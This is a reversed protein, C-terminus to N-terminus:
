DTSSSDPTEQAVRAPTTRHGPGSRVMQPHSAATTVPVSAATVAKSFDGPITISAPIVQASGTGTPPPTLPMLESPIAGPPTISPLSAGFGPAGFAVSVSQSTNDPFFTLTATTPDYYGFQLHGVGQYDGPVPIVDKGPKAVDITVDPGGNHPRYIFQGTAPLYVALEVHGSGDYDGPVPITQGVGPVGFPVIVDPGGGPPRIAFAGLSAVYVAVDAQGTGFYDAPAPLSQGPGPVGIPVIEDPGGNSPRIGYAALSPMYVAIDDVGTGSFDAPTPISQGVGPLGFPITVDPGGNAPRYAYVGYAPIYVGLEAHGVGDYDGVAPISAGAGAYGFPVTVDPGTQPRFVFSGTDALYVSLPTVGTGEFDGPAQQAVPTPAGTVQIAEFVSSGGTGSGNAAGVTVFNGSPTIAVAFIRQPQPVSSAVFIGPTSPSGFSTDPAGTTTFRGVTPDSQDFESGPIPVGFLTSVVVQGNPQVVMGGGGATTSQLSSLLATGEVGYTPDAIGTSDLRTSAIYGDFLGGVVIDGSAEVAVGLLDYNEMDSPILISGSGDIAQGFTSDPLGDSDLRSVIAAGFSNNSTGQVTIDGALVIQGNPQIAMGVLNSDNPDTPLTLLEVGNNGFSTDLTGTPTVKAMAFQMNLVNSPTPYDTYTGGVLISGDPEIAVADVNQFSLAGPGFPFQFTGDQGFSTDLSGDPNLVTVYASQADTSFNTVTGVIVINGDPAIAVASAPPLDDLIVMGPGGFSTEISGDGRGFTTDISGDANLRTIALVQPYPAVGQSSTSGAMVIQGNPQVAVTQAVSDPNFAVNVIGTGGGFTPDLVGAGSLLHRPELIEIPRAAIKRRRRRSTISM